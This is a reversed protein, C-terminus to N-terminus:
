CEPREWAEVTTVGCPPDDIGMERDKDSRAELGARILEV